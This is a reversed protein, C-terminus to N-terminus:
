LSGIENNLPVEPIIRLLGCFTDERRIAKPGMGSKMRDILHKIEVERMENWWLPSFYTNELQEVALMLAANAKETDKMCKFSKVFQEAPGDETGHWGFVLFSTGGFASVNLTVHEFEIDGRSIIQLKNGGFDVEPHFGGSCVFPLQSSFEIAYHPMSSYDGSVLMRDYKYKWGKLDQMGRETGAKSAHLYNQISVQTSFDKGKDFNRQIEITRLANHKALYEYALARYALLFAAEHNLTLANKEIPEFLSNDHYSCFGMFTSANGAGIPAPEIEGENKFINEFGKKASIVHGKEAIASLGTARQVSHAKILKNSCTAKSAEPHLCVGRKQNQHMEQILKGVPIEQQLHRDRHCKKWKKGSGCWCLENRGMSQRPHLPAPPDFEATLSPHM